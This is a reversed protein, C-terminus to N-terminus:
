SHEPLPPGDHLLPDLPRDLVLPGEGGPDPPHIAVGPEHPVVSAQHDLRRDDRRCSGTAARDAIQRPTPADAGARQGPLLGDEGAREGLEGGPPRRPPYLFLHSAATWARCAVPASPPEGLSVARGVEALAAPPLGNSRECPHQPPHPISAASTDRSPWLGMSHSPGSGSPPSPLFPPSLM